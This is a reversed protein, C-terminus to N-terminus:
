GGLDKDDRQPLIRIEDERINSDDNEITTESVNFFKKWPQAKEGHEAVNALEPGSTLSKANDQADM